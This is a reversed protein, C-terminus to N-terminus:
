SSCFTPVTPVAFTVVVPERVAPETLAVDNVAPEALAVDNATVVVKVAPAIVAVLMAEDVITGPVTRPPNVDLHM